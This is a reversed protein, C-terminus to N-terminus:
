GALRRDHEFRAIEEASPRATGLPVAEGTEALIVIPGNGAIAHIVDGTQVFRKGGYFFIWGYPKAITHGDLVVVGGDVDKGLEVLM